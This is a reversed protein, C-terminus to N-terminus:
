VSEKKGESGSNKNDEISNNHKESSSDKGSERTPGKNNLGQDDQKGVPTETEEATELAAFVVSKCEPRTVDVPWNCILKDTDWVTKKPCQKLEPKGHVCLYYMTCEKEHPYFMFQPDSCVEANPPPIPRKTTTTTSTSRSTSDGMGENSPRSTSKDAPIVPRPTTTPMPPPSFKEMSTNIMTMLANKKGCDARYDDMDVAWVMAGGYGQKIIFDLKIAVSEEDEYGVWQDDKYAYPCKGIDDWERTWGNEKVNQCVEFYAHFGSANTYPGPKGGDTDWRRIGARLGHNDKSGLTYTRGYIPIGVILKHKPAGKDVWLQLGDRVNLKAYGWEDFPRPYLPSHVDAFGAWNGRLDYSMVHIHDFLEGLAKVEYGEDLRFKAIPVAVTLLLRPTQQDFVARLEQVLKLFNEKDSYKGQRDAAGPYEWDLDFGDFGHEKVWKVASQVFIARREKVGVMDSYKQGGEDWGGIALITKLNQHKKKLDNFRKFGNKEIDLKEDISVVEWTKNSLGVFSYILHTCLEAPIDEIDYTYPAPRNYAWTQYYCVVKGRGQIEGYLKPQGVSAAFTGLALATLSLAIHATHM